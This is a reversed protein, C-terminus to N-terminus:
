AGIGPSLCPREASASSSMSRGRAQRRQLRRLARLEKGGVPHVTTEGGKTRRVHLRGTNFDIDDWRTAVLESARLGTFIATVIFPRWKGQITLLTRLEEIAPFDVGPELNRKKRGDGKRKPQEAVVNRAVLGSLMAHSLISGLSVIVRRAMTHSRGETILTNRFTQVAAPTLASLKKGGLFPKIHLDLHQRYQQLTSRERCDIEVQRIWLKGAEIVTISERKPTHIGKDVEAEIKKRRANAEREFKFTEIHRRPKGGDAAPSFYDVIWVRRENPTGKHYTRKRVTAM